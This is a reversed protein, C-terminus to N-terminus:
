VQMSDVDNVELACLRAQLNEIATLSTTPIRETQEKLNDLRVDGVNKDELDAIHDQLDDVSSHCTPIQELIVESFDVEHKLLFPVPSVAEYHHNSARPPTHPSTPSAGTDATQGLHVTQDKGHESRLQDLLGELRRQESIVQELLDHAQEKRAKSFGCGM